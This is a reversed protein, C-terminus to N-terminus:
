EAPTVSTVKLHKTKGSPTPWHISQGVRLGILAAGLPALISVKNEEIKAEEPFVLTCETVKGSDLDEYKLASHMAVVDKPLKELPVVTARDLEKQLFDAVDSESYELLYSIKQFDKETLILNTENEM